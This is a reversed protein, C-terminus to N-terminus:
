SLGQRRLLASPDPERGRFAIYLDMPNQTGGKELINKRFLSAVERNFIGKTKFYEFADADLVEAWKYSYYGASYGGAFIHSFHSSILTGEPHDFLRSERTAREEIQEVLAPDLLADPDALTAHWGFDLFGFNIQRLGQWGSMFNSSDEIKKILSDPIIEQSSYHKAFLELSARERIFNEMIQSPLEVFDWYVNPGGLSRYKCQSLLGHLAHGFEHFLTRVHDLNLLSPKTSSPRPFNCSILVHPRQIKGGMLGQDKFTSMWAGGQKNDRPFFDTYLLGILQGSNTDNVEYVKVEPDYVEIDNRVKFELGYLRTAHEFAGSVVQDLPFYEKLIEDDLDFKKKKLKESLFAVDWPKVPHQSLQSLEELDKKAAPLYTKRLEELFQTVKQTSTAMREELVFAAHSAYGLIRARKHRLRVLEMLIPKNDLDGGNAKANYAHWLEKRLLRDEAYQLVPQYSPMQLTFIWQGHKSKKEALSQAAECADEPIGKLRQPDTVVLEYQATAKLVNQSFLHGLEALREDITRLQERDDGKLLAGNRVFGRYTKKLLMAEEQTLTPKFDVVAKVREFLKPDLHIDNSFSALQPLLKPALAQLEDNTSLALLNSFLSASLDLEESCTELAEITNYFDAPKPNNKIAEVKTKALAIGQNFHPEFDSPLVKSFPITDIM